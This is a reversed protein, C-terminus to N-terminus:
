KKPSTKARKGEDLITLFSVAEGELRRYYEDRITEEGRLHVRLDEITFIGRFYALFGERTRLTEQRNVARLNEEKACAPVIYLTNFLFTGMTILCIVTKFLWKRKKKTIRSIDM